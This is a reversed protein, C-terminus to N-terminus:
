TQMAIRSSSSNEFERFDLVFPQISHPRLHGFCQLINRLVATYRSKLGDVMHSEANLVVDQLLCNIKIDTSRIPPGPTKRLTLHQPRWHRAAMQSPEQFRDIGDQRYKGHRFVGPFHDM